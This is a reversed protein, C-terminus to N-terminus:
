SKRDAGLRLAAGAPAAVRFRLRAGAPAVVVARPGAGRLPEGPQVVGLRVPDAAPEAIVADRDFAVSLDAVVDETVLRTPLRFRRDGLWIWGAITAGFLFATGAVIRRRRRM